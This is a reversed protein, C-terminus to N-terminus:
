LKQYSQLTPCIRWDLDKIWTKPGPRQNHYTKSGHRQDPKSDFKTYAWFVILM